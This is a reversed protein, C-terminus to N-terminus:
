PAPKTERRNMLIKTEVLDNRLARLENQVSDLARDINQFQQLILKRDENYPSDSRVIAAVDNRSLTAITVAREVRSLAKEVEDMTPRTLVQTSVWALGAFAAAVVGTFAWWAFRGQVEKWQM